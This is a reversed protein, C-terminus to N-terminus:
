KLDSSSSIQYSPEELLYVNVSPTLYEFQHRVKLIAAMVDNRASFHQWRILASLTQGAAIRCHEVLEQDTTCEYKNNSYMLKDLEQLATIATTIIKLTKLQTEL